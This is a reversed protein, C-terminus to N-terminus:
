RRTTERNLSTAHPATAHCQPLPGVYAATQFWDLAAYRYLLGSSLRSFVCVWSGRRRPEGDDNNRPYVAAAPLNTFPELQHGVYARLIFARRVSAPSVCRCNAFSRRFSRTRGNTSELIGVVLAMRQNHQVPDSSGHFASDFNTEYRIRKTGSSPLAREAHNSARHDLTGARRVKGNGLDRVLKHLVRGRSPSSRFM